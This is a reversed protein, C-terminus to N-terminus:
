AYIVRCLAICLTDTTNKLHVSVVSLINFCNICTVDCCSNTKLVCCSTICKAYLTSWNDELRHFEWVWNDTNSDLRLSLSTLFFHTNSKCLKCFFVWCELSICVFFCSLSDDSTHTLKVEFDYYVSKETLKLNFSINTLWLNCVLFCDACCCLNVLLICSLRTTFSLITMNLNSNLRVWALAILEDICDNTTSNRLFIDWCNVLTDLTSHKRTNKCVIINNINLNCKIITRIM